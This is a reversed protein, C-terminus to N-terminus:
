KQKRLKIQYFIIIVIAIVTCMIACTLWLSMATVVYLLLSITAVAFCFASLGTQMFYSEMDNTNKQKKKAIFYGVNIPQGIEMLGCISVATAIIAVILLLIHLM